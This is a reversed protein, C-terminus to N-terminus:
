RNTLAHDKTCAQAMTLDAERGNDSSDLLDITPQLKEMNTAMALRGNQGM